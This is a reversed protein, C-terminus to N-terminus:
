AAGSLRRVLDYIAEHEATARGALAKKAMEEIGWVRIVSPRSTDLVSEACRLLMFRFHRASNGPETLYGNPEAQGESVEIGYGLRRAEERKEACTQYGVRAFTIPDTYRIIPFSDRLPTKYHYDFGLVLRGDRLGADRAMLDVFLDRIPGFDLRGASTVLVQSAPFAARAEAVRNAVYDRDLRWHHTRMRYFPENEVQVVAVSALVSPGYESALADLLRRHYDAAAAALASGERVTAGEHPLGLGMAWPPLHEEPWRFTRIPGLNLCLQLGKTFAYDLFPRYPGLDVVGRRAETRQWRLGLRMHSLGLDEVAWRLAPLAAEDGGEAPRWQEPAFSAGVAVNRFTRAHGRLFSANDAAAEAWAREQAWMEKGANLGEDGALLFAGAGAIGLFQRRTVAGLRAPAFARSV